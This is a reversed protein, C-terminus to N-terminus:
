SVWVTYAQVPAFSEWEPSDKSIERGDQLIKVSHNQGNYRGWEWVSMMRKVVFNAIRSYTLKSHEKSRVSVNFIHEKVNDGKVEISMMRQLVVMGRNPFVVDDDLNVGDSGPVVIDVNNDNLGMRILDKVRGVTRFIKGGICLPVFPFVLMTTKEDVGLSDVLQVTISEEKSM